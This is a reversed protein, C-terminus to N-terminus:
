KQLALLLIEFHATTDNGHVFVAKVGKECPNWGMNHHHRLNLNQLLFNCLLCASYNITKLRIQIIAFDTTVCILSCYYQFLHFSQMIHHVGFEATNSAVNIAYNHLIIRCM